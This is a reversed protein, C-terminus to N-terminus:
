IQFSDQFFDWLYGGTNYQIIYTIKFVEEAVAATAAAAEEAVVVM